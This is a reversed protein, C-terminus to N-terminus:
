IPLSIGTLTKFQELAETKKNLKEVVAEVTTGASPKKVEEQYEKAAMVAEKFKKMIEENGRLKWNLKTNKIIWAALSAFFLKGVPTLNDM